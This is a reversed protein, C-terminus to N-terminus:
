AGPPTIDTRTIFVTANTTKIKITFSDKVTGDSEEVKGFKLEMIKGHDQDILAAEELEPIIKNQLIGSITAM